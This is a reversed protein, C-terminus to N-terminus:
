TWPLLTMGIKIPFGCVLWWYMAETLCFSLILTTTLCWDLLAVRYLCYSPCMSNWCSSKSTTSCKNWSSYLIVRPGGNNIVPSPMSLLESLQWYQTLCAGHSTSVGLCLIPQHDSRVWSVEILKTIDTHFLSTMIIVQFHSLFSVTVCLKWM